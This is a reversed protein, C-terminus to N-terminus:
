SIIHLSVLRILHQANPSVFDPIDFLGSEIRDYTLQIDGQKAVVVVLLRQSPSIMGEVCPQM